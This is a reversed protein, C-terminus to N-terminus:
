SQQLNKLAIVALRMTLKRAKLTKKKYSKWWRGDWGLVKSIWIMKSCSALSARSLKNM